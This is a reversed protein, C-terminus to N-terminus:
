LTRNQTPTSTGNGIANRIKREAHHRGESDCRERHDLRELARRVYPLPSLAAGSSRVSTQATAERAEGGPYRHHKTIWACLAERDYTTGRPTMAPNAM